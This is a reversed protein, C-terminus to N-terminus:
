FEKVVIPRSKNTSVAFVCLWVILYSVDSINLVAYSNHMDFGRQMWGGLKLIFQLADCSCQKGNDSVARAHLRSSAPGAPADTSGDLSECSYHDELIGSLLNIMIDHRMYHLPMM